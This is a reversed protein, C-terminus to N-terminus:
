AIWINSKRCCIRLKKQLFGEGFDLYVDEAIVVAGLSKPLKQEGLRIMSIWGRAEVPCKQDAPIPCDQDRGIYLGLNLTEYLFSGYDSTSSIPTSRADTFSLSNM